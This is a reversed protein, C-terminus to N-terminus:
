PMWASPGPAGALFGPLFYVFDTINVTGDGSMDTGTGSDHGSIMDGVFYMGFDAIDCAGNQDFDCDCVNGYLDGDADLQDNPGAKPGNAVEICSDGTDPVGDGDVDPPTVADGALVIVNGVDNATPADGLMENVILDDTGNADVDGATASYGLVDHGQKGYVETVRFAGPPPLDALDIFTPWPDPQGFFVHVLGAERRGLATAHPSTIMLDDYGDDDFDGQAATDGTIDDSSAGAFSSIVLGPPPLDLDFTLGKLRYADYFVHGAGSNPRESTLDGILDGVFLDAHGNGDYDRGGLMEEGFARNADGGDIITHSGPSADFAFTFGAPWPNAAFNDDWAIYVTGDTSGGDTHAIGGGLPQLYGGSRALAAAALVESAGDDDLDAVQVTAGTHYETAVGPPTLRAIHGALPTAGFDALDITTQSALQSGGRIVYVAGRHGDEQDAGVVIDDVGDGTVDGARVWMGFRGHAQAGVFTVLAVGAPPNALDLPDLDLLGGTRDSLAEDGVLITLAGCGVRDSAPSPLDLTYNQRTILLDGIGDGTVDGMWVETGTNEKSASGQIHLVDPDSGATAITGSITGDGFILYAEGADTRGQPDSLMASFAYDVFGDHDIDLGGGVPVGLAGIGESGYVRRLTSGTTSLTALDITHAPQATARPADAVVGALSAILALFARWGPRCRKRWSRM